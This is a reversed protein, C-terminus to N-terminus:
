SQAARPVDLVIGGNELLFRSLHEVYPLSRVPEWDFGPTNALITADITDTREILRPLASRGREAGAFAAMVVGGSLAVLLALVTLSKWRRRLELLTWMRLASM